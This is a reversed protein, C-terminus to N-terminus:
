ELTVVAAQVPASVEAASPPPLNQSTVASAAKGPALTPQPTAPVVTPAAQTAAGTTTPRLKPPEARTGSTMEVRPDRRVFDCYAFGLGSISGRFSTRSTQVVDFCPEFMSGRVSACISSSTVKITGVPMAVFRAPKGPAQMTGVVAGDAYIRGVGRTGDFCSYSFLKGAVFRRAEDPRLPATNAAAAGAAAFMASLLLLRCLRM